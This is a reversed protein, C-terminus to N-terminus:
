IIGGLAIAKLSADDNLAIPTSNGVPSDNAEPTRNRVDAEDDKTVHVPCPPVEARLARSLSTLLADCTCTPDPM